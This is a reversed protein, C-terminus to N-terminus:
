LADTSALTGIQGRASALVRRIPSSATGPAQTADHSGGGQRRTKSSHKVFYPSTTRAPRPPPSEAGSATARARGVGAAAWRARSSVTPRATRDISPADPSDRWTTRERSVPRAVKTEVGGPRAILTAG